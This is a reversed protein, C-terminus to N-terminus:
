WLKSSTGHALTRSESRGRIRIQRVADVGLTADSLICGRRGLRPEEVENRLVRVLIVPPISRALDGVERFRELLADVLRVLHLHIRHAGHEARAEEALRGVLARERVDDRAVVGERESEQEEPRVHCVLHRAGDESDRSGGSSLSENAVRVELKGVVDVLLNVDAVERHVQLTDDVLRVM